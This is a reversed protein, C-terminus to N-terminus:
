DRLSRGTLTLFITELNTRESSLHQFRHGRETLWELIGASDRTLDRVGIRVTAGRLEASEVGPGQGLDEISLRSPAGDELEVTLLNRVPVVRYLGQLTDDRIIKGHDIIVLRDCLREAEEMYHTTYLLTK